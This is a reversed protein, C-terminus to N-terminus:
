DSACPAEMEMMETNTGSVGDWVFRDGQDAWSGKLLETVKKSGQALDNGQIKVGSQEWCFNQIGSFVKWEKM